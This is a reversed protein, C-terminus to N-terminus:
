SDVSYGTVTTNTCGRKTPGTEYRGGLRASINIVKPEIEEFEIEVTLDESQGSCSGSPPDLLSNPYEPIVINVGNTERIPLEVTEFSTSPEGVTETDRSSVPYGDIVHADTITLDIQGENILSVTLGTATVGQPVSVEDITATATPTWDRRAAITDGRYAILEYAEPSLSRTDGSVYLEVRTQAPNIEEEEAHIGGDPNQLSLEDIEHDEILDVALNYRDSVRDSEVIETGTIVSSASGGDTSNGGGGPSGSCGAVAVAAAGGIGALLRRRTTNTM